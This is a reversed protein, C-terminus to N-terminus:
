VHSHALNFFQPVFDFVDLPLLKCRQVGKLLVYQILHYDSKQKNCEQKKHFWTNGPRLIRNFQGHFVTQRLSKDTRYCLVVVTVDPGTGDVPQVPVVSILELNVAM